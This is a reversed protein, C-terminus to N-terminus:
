NPWPKIGGLFFSLISRLPLSFSRSRQRRPQKPETKKQKKARGTRNGKGKGTIPSNDDDDDNLENARTPEISINKLASQFSSFDCEHSRLLSDLVEYTVKRLDEIQVGNRVLADELNRPVRRRM